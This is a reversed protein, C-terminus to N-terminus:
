NKVFKSTHIEEGDTVKVLYFGDQLQDIPLTMDFGGDQAAMNQQFVVRGKFDLVQLFQQSSNGDYQINVHTQAPNPYLALGETPHLEEYSLPYEVTFNYRINDGFDSNFTKMLRGSMERIEISGNGDNNAWWSLGDDDADYVNLTYCGIGLKVTDRYVSNAEFGSRTLRKKGDFDEIDFSTEAPQLNTRLQIIFQHPLVEPIDFASHYINNPAYEDTAGNAKTIEAHFVNNTRSAQEWLTASPPLFVEATELFGLKGEWEYTLPKQSDNMWYNITATTLETSGTNQIVVMPDHCNTNFRAFEVRKSPNRVELLRADLTHNIAGYSILQHNVIYNSSGAAVDVDYDLSVAKKGTVYETIDSMQVDTAAGPCWGARDYVWTGGQPYVPNEACEKWVQWTFRNVGDLKLHHNRPIFEGQQGHGTITSRVVYNKAEPNLSLDRPAFYTDNNIAGFGRSESKWVQQMDLVDRVPTGVIFHFQIDMDEMWQGGREITMRKQGKFIPLFDTVDFTWTKGNQGLDLNVGYPTVFSMIEYKAPWRRHYTLDEVKISGEKNVPITRLVKTTAGQYVQQPSARWLLQSKVESVEDNQFGGYNENITYEVVSRSTLPLSDLVKTVVVSTDYDGRLLTINPKVPAYSFFRDLTIGRKFQWSIADNGKATDQSNQANFAESGTGENFSYYAVLNKFSSHTANVSINMWDGIETETLAKDWVRFEDISGKYNSGYSTSKGLVFKAIDIPKRKGTGSHWLKGNLYIKMEGTSVKKTFAWHNWDGELESPSAAKNIRDFGDGDGGCDWYVQSNGWPLHINVDREGNAGNGNLITTNTPLLDANGYAWFSVTIENAISSMSGVPIDFHGNSAVNTSYNNNAVAVQGLAAQSGALELQSTPTSNTFCFEVIVNDTGNWDFPKLFQIRNEGKAFSYNGFYVQTFKSFDLAKIDLSDTGMQKMRVRFFNMKGADVANVKIGDIDGASFGAATLESVSYLIQIKGSRNSGNLVKSVDASSSFLNFQDESNIKDVKVDKHSYEYYDHLQKSTYDFNTGNFGSIVYNPHKYPVSDVRSSDHFYTNCSADWEGCGRDRNTGTSVRAEKCRMNYTMLVKEFKVNPLTSFDIVSDRIGPSWQNIGYTQTYNFTKITITDGENQALSMITFGCFALLFIIRM